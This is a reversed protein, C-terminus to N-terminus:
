LNLICILGMHTTKIENKKKPYSIIRDGFLLEVLIELLRRRVLNAFYMGECLKKAQCFSKQRVIQSHIYMFYGSDKLNKGATSLVTRISKVDYIEMCLFWHKFFGAAEM